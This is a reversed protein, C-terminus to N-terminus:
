TKSYWVIVVFVDGILFYCFNKHFRLKRKEKFEQNELSDGLLLGTRGPSIENSEQL